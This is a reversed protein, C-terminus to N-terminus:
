TLSIACRVHKDYRSVPFRGVSVPTRNTDDFGTDVGM